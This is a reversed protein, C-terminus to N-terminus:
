IECVQEESTNLAYPNIDSIYFYMVLYPKDKISKKVSSYAWVKWIM